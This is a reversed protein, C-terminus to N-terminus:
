SFLDPYLATRAERLMILAALPGRSRSWLDRDFLHVQGNAVATITPWVANDGLDALFSETGLVFLVEPDLEILKELGLQVLGFRTSFELNRGGLDGVTLTRGTLAYETGLATVLSGAFSTDMWMGLIGPELGPYVVMVSVPDRGEIAEITENLEEYFGDIFAQAEDELGFIEGVTRLQSMSEGYSNARMRLVPAVDRMASVDNSENSLILDPELAVVLELAPPQALPTTETWETDFWFPMPSDGRTTYGVPEIGLVSLTETQQLGWAYVRQPIGDITTPGYGVDFTRQGIVTTPTVEVISTVVVTETVISTVVETVTETVIETVTEGPVEVISTVVVTEPPPAVPTAVPADDGCAAVLLALAALAGLVRWAGTRRKRNMQM